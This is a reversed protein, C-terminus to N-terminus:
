KVAINTQSQHKRPRHIYNVVVKSLLGPNDVHLNEGMIFTYAGSVTFVYQNAYVGYTYPDAQLSETNLELARLNEFCASGVFPKLSGVASEAPFVLYFFHGQPDIVGLFPANPPKFHLILTENAYFTTSCVWIKPNNPYAHVNIVSNPAAVLSPHFIKWSGVLILALAAICVILNKKMIMYFNDRIIFKAINEDRM